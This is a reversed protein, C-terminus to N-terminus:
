RSVGQRPEHGCFPCTLGSVVRNIWRDWNLCYWLARKTVIM